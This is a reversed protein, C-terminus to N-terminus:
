LRYHANTAALRRSEPKEYSYVITIIHETLYVICTKDATLSDLCFTEHKEIELYFTGSLVLIEQIIEGHLVM